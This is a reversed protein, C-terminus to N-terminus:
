AAQAWNIHSRVMSYFINRALAGLDIFDHDPHPEDYRSCFVIDESGHKAVNLALIAPIKEFVEETIALNLEHYTFKKVEEGDMLELVYADFAVLSEALDPCPYPSQQVVWRAFQGTFDGRMLHMEVHCHDTSIDLNTLTM